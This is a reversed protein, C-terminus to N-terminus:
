DKEEMGFDEMVTAIRVSRTEAIMGMLGQGIDKIENYKSLLAIHKKIVSNAHALAAKTRADEELANSGPSPKAQAVLASRQAQLSTLTAELEAKKAAMAQLRTNQAQSLSESSSMSANVSGSGVNDVEREELSDPAVPDPSENSSQQENNQGAINSNESTM